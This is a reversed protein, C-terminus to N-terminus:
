GGSREAEEGGGGGEGAQSVAQRDEGPVCGVSMVGQSILLNAPSDGLKKLGIVGGWGVKAGKLEDGARTLQAVEMELMRKDRSYGDREKKVAVMEKELAKMALNRDHLTRDREFLGGQLAGYSGVWVGHARWVGECPGAGDGRQWAQADSGGACWTLEVGV